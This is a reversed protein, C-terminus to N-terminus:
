RRPLLGHELRRRGGARHELRRGAHDARRTARRALRSGANRLSDLWDLKYDYHPDGPERGNPIYLSWMRIGGCTVGLARAETAPTRGVAAPGPFGHEIDELRRRSAVAVGNWASTGFHAVEYGLAEFMLHPFQDDRCKTEQIALVDVDHRELM